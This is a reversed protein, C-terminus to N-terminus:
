AASRSKVSFVLVKLFCHECLGLVMNVHKATDTGVDYAKMGTAWLDIEM